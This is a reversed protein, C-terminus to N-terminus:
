RRRGALEDSHQQERRSEATMREREMREAIKEITRLARTREGLQMSAHLNADSERACVKAADAIALEYEGTAEAVNVLDKVSRAAELLASSEDLFDDRHETHAALEQNARECAIQTQSQRAAAIDRLRERADRLSRVARPRITM